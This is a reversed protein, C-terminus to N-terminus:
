SWDGKVTLTYPVSFIDPDKIILITCSSNNVVHTKCVNTYSTPAWSDLHNPHKKMLNVPMKKRAIGEPADVYDSIICGALM